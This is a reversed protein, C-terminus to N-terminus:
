RCGEWNRSENRGQKSKEKQVGNITEQIRTGEQKETHSNGLKQTLALHDPKFGVQLCTEKPDASGGLTVCTREMNFKLWVTNCLRKLQNSAWRQAVGVWHLALTRYDKSYLWLTFSGPLHNERNRWNFSQLCVVATNKWM